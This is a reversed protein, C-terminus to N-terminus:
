DNKKNSENKVEKKQIFIRLEIYFIISGIIFSIFTLFLFFLFYRIFMVDKNLCVITLIFSLLPITYCLVFITKGYVSKTFLGINDRMEKYNMEYIMNFDGKFTYCPM